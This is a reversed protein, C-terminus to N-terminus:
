DIVKGGFIMKFRIMDKKNHINFFLHTKIIEMKKLNLYNFYDDNSYFLYYGVTEGVGYRDIRKLNNYQEESLASWEINEDIWNITDLLEKATGLIRMCYMM